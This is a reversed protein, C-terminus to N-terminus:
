RKKNRNIQFPNPMPAKNIEGQVCDDREIQTIQPNTVNSRAPRPQELEDLGMHGIIQPMYGQADLRALQLDSSQMLQRISNKKLLDYMGNLQENTLDKHSHKMFEKFTDKDMSQLLPQMSDMMEMMNDKNRHVINQKKSSIFLLEDEPICDEMKLIKGGSIFQSDKSILQEELLYNYIDQITQGVIELEFNQQDIVFKM